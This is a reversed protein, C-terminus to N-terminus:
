KQSACVCTAFGKATLHDASCVYQPWFPALERLGNGVFYNRIYQRSAASKAGPDAAFEAMLRRLAAPTFAPQRYAQAYDYEVGWQAGIGTQNSAAVVKYDELLATSPDIRAVTFAPNNGDVPSISPVLKIALGPGSGTDSQLLRMEDMHTHAFLVLRVDAAHQLLLDDLRDGDLFMEPGDSGCVDRIKSLTAYANVGPPIHGMIWVKQGARQAQSLQDSLWDLEATAAADDQKGACTRYKSSLFVDNLVILRTGRMPPAMSVSYYGGTDFEREVAQRSASPLTEAFLAGTRALFASGPDLRYDGCASDNNGLSFYIPVGPWPQHLQGVVFAITKEVFAEYVGPSSDGVAARYRCDFQHAILDGTVTIFAPTGQRRMAALSSQLLPFPTDIGRARCAHQIRAFQQPQDPSDPQALTSAWQTVPEAALQKAKAPDHFPDFHIDSVMLAPITAHSSAQRSATPHAHAPLAAGIAFALASVGITQVLKRM